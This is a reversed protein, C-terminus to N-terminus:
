SVGRDKYIYYKNSEKRHFYYGSKNLVDFLIKEGHSKIEITGILELEYAKTSDVM